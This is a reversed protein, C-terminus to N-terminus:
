VLGSHLGGFAGPTFSGAPFPENILADIALDIAITGADYQAGVVDLLPFTMEVVDPTSALVVEITMRPPISISRVLPIMERAVNDFVIQAVPPAEEKDDPLVTNFPVFLYTNGRSITGRVYPVESILITPDSSIRIPTPLLDPLEKPGHITILVIHTEDSEQRNISELFNLSVTRPM